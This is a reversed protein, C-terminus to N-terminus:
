GVEKETLSKSLDAGGIARFLAIRTIRADAIATVLLQRALFTQRRADVVGVFNELGNRYRIEVLRAADQNLAVQHQLEAVRADATRSQGYATEVEGLATFTARRLDAFAERATAQSADIRAGVRGFDLLPGALAPGISGSIADVGFLDGVALAAVGVLASLTLRPFRQAAAAAIDQDAARLRAEAALIDPRNRLATTSIAGRITIPIHAPAAEELIPLVEQAPRATLTVVQGIVQARQGDIVALRSRADSALSEARLRDTDSSVGVRVRERTIAVLTSAENLDSRAVISQDALARWNVVANAIDGTLALRVARADASAADLRATAARSSARLGGFLDFDYSAEVGAQFLLNERDVSVGPPLSGTQQAGIRRGAAAASATVNPLREAKSGRVQARALDIRALAAELSPAGTQALADLRVFAPDDVPLLGRVDATESEPAPALLFAPPLVIEPRDPVHIAACGSLAFSLFLARKM